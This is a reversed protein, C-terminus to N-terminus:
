HLESPKVRGRLTWKGNPLRVFWEPSSELVIRVLQRESIGDSLIEFVEELKATDDCALVKAELTARLAELKNAM